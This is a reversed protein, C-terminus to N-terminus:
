SFEGTILDWTGAGHGICHRGDITARLLGKPGRQSQNMRHFHDESSYYDGQAWWASDWDTNRGRAKIIAEMKDAGVVEGYENRIVSDPRAWWRGIWDPLDHIGEEPIVHLAFCWGASSKGIHLPEYPRGCCTCDPREHFYYNTGM